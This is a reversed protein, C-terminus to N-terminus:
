FANIMKIGKEITERDSKMSSVVTDLSIFKDKKTDMLKTDNYIDGLLSFSSIVNIILM